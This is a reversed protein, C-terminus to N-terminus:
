IVRLLKPLIISPQMKNVNTQAVNGNISETVHSHNGDASTAKSINGWDSVNGSSAYFKGNPNSTNSGTRTGDSTFTHQHDGRNNTNLAINPLNARALTVDEAGGVSGIVTGDIGSKGNTVRGAINGGMNDLGVVTRGRLDPLNFTTTGNGAGFQTGILNFLAAYTARNIAQGFPLVFYSNPPTASVYDLLGGIPINFPSDFYGLFLWEQSAAIFTARYPTGQIAVGAPLAKGTFGRLPKAGKGDVNLTCGETNTVHPRFSLTLGDTLTLDRGTALTYAGAAGGTVVVSDNIGSVSDVYQKTALHKNQTPTAGGVPQTFDRSGDLKALTAEEATARDIEAILESLFAYRSSTIEGTLIDVYPGLRQIKNDVTVRVKGSSGRAPCPMADSAATKILVNGEGTTLNVVSYEKSRAPVVMIVDAGLAGTVVLVASRTQNTQYQTDTLNVTGGVSNITTVGAIATDLQTLIRGMVEAWTGRYSNAEPIEVQLSPTPTSAM